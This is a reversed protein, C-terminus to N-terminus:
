TRRPTEGGRADIEVNAGGVADPSGSPSKQEDKTGM